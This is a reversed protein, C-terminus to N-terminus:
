GTANAAEFYALTREVDYPQEEYPTGMWESRSTTFFNGGYVHIAGAYESTSNTVAHVADAGLLCVDRPRLAKGGSEVLTRGDRRFFANDEGGTYLGIAAWMRHDHPNFSMRPAWVVNIVTLDDSVHLTTVRAREPPLAASLEAPRAMAASLIEKIALRPESEARAAICSAVFAETDFM